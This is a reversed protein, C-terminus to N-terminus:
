QIERLLLGIIYCLIWTDRGETIEKARARRRAIGGGGASELGGRARGGGAPELM